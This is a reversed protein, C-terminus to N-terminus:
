FLDLLTLQFGSTTKTCPPILVGNAPAKAAEINFQYYQLLNVYNHDCQAQLFPAYKLRDCSHIIIQSPDQDAHQKLSLLYVLSGFQYTRLETDSESKSCKIVDASFLVINFSRSKVTPAYKRTVARRADFTSICDFRISNNCKKIFHM